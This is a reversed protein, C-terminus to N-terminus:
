RARKSFRMVWWFRVRERWSPPAFVRDEAVKVPRPEGLPLIRWDGVGSRENYGAVLDACIEFTRPDDVADLTQVKIWDGDLVRRHEVVHTATM